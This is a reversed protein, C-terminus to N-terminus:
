PYGLFDGFGGLCFLCCVAGFFGLVFRGAEAPLGMRQRRAKMMIERFAETETRRSERDTPGHSHPTIM